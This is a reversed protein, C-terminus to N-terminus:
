LDLDTQGGRRYCVTERGPLLRRRSIVGPTGDLVGLQKGTPLDWLFGLQDRGISVLRSADPSFALQTIVGKHGRLTTKVAGTVADLILIARNEGTAAFWKGDM